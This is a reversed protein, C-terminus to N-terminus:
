PNNTIKTNTILLRSFFDWLPTSAPNLFPTLKKPYSSILYKVLNCTFIKIKREPPLTEFNLISPRPLLPLFYPMNNKIIKWATTLSSFLSPISTSREWTEVLVILAARCVVLAGTIKEWLAALASQLEVLFTGSSTSLFRTLKSTCGLGHPFTLPIHFHSPLTYHLTLGIEISSWIPANNHSEMRGRSNSMTCIDKEQRREVRRKKRERRKEFESSFSAFYFLLLLLGISIKGVYKKFCVSETNM